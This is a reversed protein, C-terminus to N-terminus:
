TNYTHHIYTYHLASNETFDTWGGILLKFIIYTRDSVVVIYLTGVVHCLLRSYVAEVMSGVDDKQKGETAGNNVVCINYM